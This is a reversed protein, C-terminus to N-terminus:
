KSDYSRGSRYSSVGRTVSKMMEETGAANATFDYNLGIGMSNGVAFADQNAGIYVFEWNYKERQHTITSFVLDRTAERSANEEGDTIIVCLVRGPRDSEAMAGLRTGTESVLKVISDYLATSGRPSLVLDPIESLPKAVYSTEYATDFQALTVACAGPVKRQEEIFSKFGGEVDGKISSMSGSRDLLIIIESYDPKTM